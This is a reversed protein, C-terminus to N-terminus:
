AAGVTAIHNDYFSGSVCIEGFVFGTEGYRVESSDSM